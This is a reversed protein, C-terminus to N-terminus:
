RRTPSLDRHYSPEPVFQYFDRISRPSTDILNRWRRRLQEPSDNVTSDAVRLEIREGDSNLLPPPAHKIDFDRIEFAGIKQGITLRENQEKTADVTPLSLAFWRESGNTIYGSFRPVEPLKADPIQPSTRPPPSPKVEEIERGGSAQEVRNADM